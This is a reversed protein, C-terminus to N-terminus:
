YEPEWDVEIRRADLDVSKLIPEVFPVLKGAPDGGPEGGRVRMLPHAGYSEMAVVTGLPRGTVSVVDLGVLDALYVEGRRAKPLASRPVAVECGKLKAAAEPTPCGELSAVVTGSHVRAAVVRRPQWEGGPAGLWWVPQAM